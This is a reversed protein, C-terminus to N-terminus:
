KLAMHVIKRILEPYAIGAKDASLAVEDAQAICPNANPEIMYVQGESTLRLDFRAYSNFNLARYARKCVATIESQVEPTLGTAIKGKIGWRKRYKDDWKAKYTAIRPEDEAQKTFVMERVPLVSVRKQGIVTAYLERGEIFEEAIAATHMKQHIFKVRDIFAKETDVVSAQSIGRSAEENLPKVICPLKLARPLSIPDGQQFTYFEPVKLQHFRLLKKALAKDNCLFLSGSSAGTFPIGIMELLGAMNHDMHTNGDFLEMLNFIVDPKFFEIEEFLPRIDQHLGLLSVQYGNQKLAKQVNAETYMNDPDAFEDKFAYGRPTAYPTNFLLLVKLKKRM